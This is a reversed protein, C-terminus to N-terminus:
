NTSYGLCGPMGTGGFAGVGATMAELAEDSREDMQVEELEIAPM